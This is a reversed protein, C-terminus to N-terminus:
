ENAAENPYSVVKAGPWIKKITEVIRLTEEPLQILIREEKPDIALRQCRARQQGNM